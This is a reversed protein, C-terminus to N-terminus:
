GLPPWEDDNIRDIRHLLWFLALLLLFFLVTAAIRDDNM